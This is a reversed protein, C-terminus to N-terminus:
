GLPSLHLYPTGCCVRDVQEHSSSDTKKVTERDGKNNHLLGSDYKKGLYKM